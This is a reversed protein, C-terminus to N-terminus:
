VDHLLVETQLIIVELILFLAIIGWNPSDNSGVNLM